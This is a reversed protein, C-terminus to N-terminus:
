FIDTQPSENDIKRALALFGQICSKWPPCCYRELFAKHSPVENLSSIDEDAKKAKAVAENNIWQQRCGFAQIAKRLGGNDGKFNSLEVFFPELIAKLDKDLPPTPTLETPTVPRAPREEEAMTTPKEESQRREIRLRHTQRREIFNDHYEQWM